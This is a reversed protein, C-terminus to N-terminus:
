TPGQSLIQGNSSGAPGKEEQNNIELATQSIPFCFKPGVKEATRHQEPFSTTSDQVHYTEIGM